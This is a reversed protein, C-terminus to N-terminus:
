IETLFMRANANLAQALRAAMKKGVPRRGNEMLSVNNPLIKLKKALEMEYIRSRLVKM